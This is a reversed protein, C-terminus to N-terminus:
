SPSVAWLFHSEQSLTPEVPAALVCYKLDMCFGTLHQVTTWIRVLAKPTFVGDQDLGEMFSKSSKSRGRHNEMFM